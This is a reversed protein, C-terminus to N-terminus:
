LCHKAAEVAAVYAVLASAYYTAAIWCAPTWWAFLCTNVMYATAAALAATAAAANALLIQCNQQPMVNQQNLSIADEVRVEFLEGLSSIGKTPALLENRMKPNGQEFFVSATLTMKSVLDAVAIKVDGTNSVRSLLLGSVRGHGVTAVLVVIGQEDWWLPIQVVTRGEVDTAQSARAWAVRKGEQAVLRAVLQFEPFAEIQARIEPSVVSPDPQTEVMRPTSSCGALVLLGVMLWALAKRNHLM